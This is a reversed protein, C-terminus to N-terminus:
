HSPCILLLNITPAIADARNIPDHANRGIGAAPATPQTYETLGFQLYPACPPIFFSQGFLPVQGGPVQAILPAFVAQLTFLQEALLQRLYASRSQLEHAYDSKPTVAQSATKEPRRIQQQAHSQQQGWAETPTLCRDKQLQAFVPLLQRASSAARIVRQLLPSHMAATLCPGAFYRRCYSSPEGFFYGNAPCRPLSLISWLRGILSTSM